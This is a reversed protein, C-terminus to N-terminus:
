EIADYSDILEFSYTQDVKIEDGYYPNNPDAKYLMDIEFLNKNEKYKYFGEYVWIEHDNEKDHYFVVLRGDYGIAIDIPVFEEDTIYIRGLKTAFDIVLGLDECYWIGESPYPPIISCGFFTCLIVFVIFCCFTKKM